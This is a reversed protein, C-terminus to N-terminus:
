IINTQKLKKIFENVEKRSSLIYIKKSDKYKEFLDFLYKHYKKEFNWVWTLFEKNFGEPCGKPSLSTIKGWNSFARKFIRLFCFWTPLDIFIITDAAQFRPEIFKIYPGELIWKDKNVLEKHVKDFEEKTPRQWDPKWYYQDLHYVPLNLIESLKISLYSKGSGANGIIAIRKM